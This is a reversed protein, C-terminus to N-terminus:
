VELPKFKSKMTERSIRTYAKQPLVGLFFRGYQKTLVRSDLITLTGLDTKNRILRGIGQRFKVVADPL